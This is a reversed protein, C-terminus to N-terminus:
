GEVNLTLAVAKDQVALTPPVTDAETLDASGDHTILALRVIVDEQVIVLVRSDLFDIFLYFHPKGIPLRM